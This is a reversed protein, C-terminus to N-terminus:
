LDSSATRNDVTYIENTETNGIFKRILLDNVATKFLFKPNMTARCGECVTGVPTYRLSDFHAIVDKRSTRRLTRYVKNMFSCPAFSSANSCMTTVYSKLQLNRKQLLLDNVKIAHLKSVFEKKGHACPNQRRPISITKNVSQVVRPATQIAKQRYFSMVKTSNTNNFSAIPMRTPINLFYELSDGYDFSHERIVILIINIYLLVFSISLCIMVFFSIFLM